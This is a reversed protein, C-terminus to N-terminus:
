QWHERLWMEVTLTRWMARTSGRGARIVMLYHELAREEDIYGRLAAESDSLLSRVVPAGRERLGRDFLPTPVIKTASHLFEESVVGKMALRTLRKEDGVTNLIRQPVSVAFEALRRDSWPDAFAQGFRAHVRESAAVGHLQLPTFIARYRERAAHSKLERPAGESLPIGRLAFADAFAHSVWAPPSHVRDRLAPIPPIRDTRSWEAPWSDRLWALLERRAQGSVTRGSRGALARLERALQGWRGAHLLAPLDYIGLGAVLDGRDGSLILGIGEKRAMGLAREMLMFHSLLFPGDRDTRNGSSPRLPWADDAPVETVPFGYQEVLVSSVHREDCQTLEDFAFSYVRFAPIEAGTGNGLLRGSLAGISGSDLGGSLLLGVPAVSRLRARVARELLERLHEAYEEEREYRIPEIGVPDWFRRIRAGRDTAELLAAHPLQAIGRYFTRGPAPFAGALYIGVSGDDIESPVGPVALIQKIETGFLLGGPHRYYYLNRMGLPDRAAVLRRVRADWVAFAFDGLLHEPCDSGWRLYAELILAADTVPGEGAAIGLRDMLEERNDIRVDAVLVVQGKAAVLPQREHVSEPTTHLLLHGFGYGAGYREGRGHPGRHPVADLMPALDEKGVPGGDWRVWGCVGSM